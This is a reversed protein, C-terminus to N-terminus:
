GIDQSYPRSEECTLTSAGAGHFSACHCACGHVHRGLPALIYAPMRSCHTVWYRVDPVPTTCSVRPLSRRSPETAGDLNKSSHLVIMLRTQRKDARSVTKVNRRDHRASPSAGVAIASLGDGAEFVGVRTWSCLLGRASACLIRDHAAAHRARSGCASPRCPVGSAAGCTPM